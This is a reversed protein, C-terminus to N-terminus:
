KKNYTQWVQELRQLQKDNFNLRAMYFELIHRDLDDLDPRKLLAEIKEVVRTLEETPPDVPKLDGKMYWVSKGKVLLEALPPELKVIRGWFGNYIRQEFEAEIPCSVIAIDGCNLNKQEPTLNPERKAVNERTKIKAVVRAVHAMTLGTEPATQSAFLWAKRWKSQELKGIHRLHAEPITGIEGNPSIEKEIKAAKLQRYLLSESKGFKALMCQRMSKYGLVQWGKGEFLELLLKRLGILSEKIKAIQEIAETQSMLAPLKATAPTNKQQFQTMM